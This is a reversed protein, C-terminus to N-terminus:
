REYRKIGNKLQSLMENRIEKPDLIELFEIYQLALYIIGQKSSKVRTTFHCLDHHVINIEKGFIDIMDDLIKDHCLLTFTLEEGGYMYVKNKAYEYPDESKPLQMTKKELIKINKIKDVRYHSFGSYKENKAILYTKENNYVMYYPHLQYIKENNPILNKQYDYHMYQFEICHKGRIAELLQDINHFFDKNEKKRINEIFVMNKYNNSVYKSQTKLLKNILDNSFKKPIYNSSHIANCLLIVESEEFDREEFYYGIGNDSYTSISYGQDQLLKINSYITKRELKISYLDFLLDNIRKLSLIHNEDSYEKLIELLVLASQKKEFM